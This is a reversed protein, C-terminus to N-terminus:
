IVFGLLKIIKSVGVRATLSSTGPGLLTELGATVVAMELLIEKAFKLIAVAHDRRPEPLGAVILYLLSLLSVCSDTPIQYMGSLM